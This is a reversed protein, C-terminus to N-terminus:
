YDWRKRILVKDIEEAIQELAKKNSGFADKYGNGIAIVLDNYSRGKRYKLNCDSIISEVKDKILLGSGYQNELWIKEAFKDQLLQM